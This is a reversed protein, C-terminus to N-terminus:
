LLQLAVDVCHLAPRVIRQAEAAAEWDAREQREKAKKAEGAEVSKQYEFWITAAAVQVNCHVAM